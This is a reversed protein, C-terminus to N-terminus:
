LRTQSQNRYQAPTCNKYKKFVKSFYNADPIGCYAAVDQIQMSTTRLLMSAQEVRRAAIFDTVTSGTEKRFLGSLYSPNLELASALHKLSLENSLQTDILVIAQHVHKSYDKMSYKKVLLCYSQIMNGMLEAIDNTNTQAEIKAAYESSARDLYVPHVGGQQAAKRMLTNCIICYNKMNRIPDALRQKFSLASLDPLMKRARNSQGRSVMLMLENEWKYREEMLHMSILADDNEENVPFVANSLELQELNIDTLTFSGSGGWLKEGLTNIMAYIFSDDVLFPINSYCEELAKIKGPPISLEHALATIGANDMPLKIYPGVLMASEKQGTCCLFLYNCYYEDTLKYIIREKVREEALEMLEYYNKERGSVKRLGMDFFIDRSQGKEFFHMSIHMKSLVSEMYKVILTDTMIEGEKKTCSECFCMDINIYYM